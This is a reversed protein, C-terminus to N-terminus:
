NMEEQEKNYSEVIQALVLNLIFFSGFIVLSVFYVASIYYSSADMYNYMMGDTWNELSLIQFITLMARAINNFNVIDFLINENNRVDDINMPGGAEIGYDISKGCKYIPTGVTNPDAGFTDILNKCDQDSSCLWPFTSVIPWSYSIL